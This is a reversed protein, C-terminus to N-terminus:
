SKMRKFLSFEISGRNCVYLTQPQKRDIKKMGSVPSIDSASVEWATSDFATQYKCEGWKKQEILPISFLEMEAENTEKGGFKMLWLVDKANAPYEHPLPKGQRVWEKASPIRRIVAHAFRDKGIRIKVMYM